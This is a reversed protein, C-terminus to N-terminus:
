KSIQLFQYFLCELFLHCNRVSCGEVRDLLFALNKQLDDEPLSKEPDDATDVTQLACVKVHVFCSSLKAIYLHWEAIVAQVGFVSVM